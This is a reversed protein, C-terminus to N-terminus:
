SACWSGRRCRRSCRPSRAPRPPTPRLRLGARGHRKPPRAGSATTPCLFGTMGAFAPIGSGKQKRGKGTERRSASAPNGRERSHRPINSPRRPAGATSEGCSYRDRLPFDRNCNMCDDIVREATATFRASRCRSQAACLLATHPLPAGREPTFVTFINSCAAVKAIATAACINAM